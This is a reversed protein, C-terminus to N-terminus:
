LQDLFLERTIEEGSLQVNSYQQLSEFTKNDIYKLTLPKELTMTVEENKWTSQKPSFSTPDGYKECLTTFISYYDMKKQNINITIIYLSDDYFQFWCRELFANRSNKSNDTEILTRNQTPLLSVDSEGHYGFDSNKMLETKTQELSMGLLINDYGDPLEQSFIFNSIFIGLIFFFLKKKSIKM